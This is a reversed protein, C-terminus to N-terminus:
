DSLLFDQPNVIQNVLPYHPAKKTSTSNMIYCTRPQNTNMTASFAGTANLHKRNSTSFIVHGVTAAIDTELNDTKEKKFM